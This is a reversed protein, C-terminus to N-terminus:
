GALRDAFGREIERLQSSVSADLEGLSTEFIADGCALSPDPTVELAPARGMAELCARVAAAHAPHVRVRDIERNRLKDLATRVIGQMADSDVALERHLVRKAIAMALHVLDTEAQRRIRDRVSALDAVTRALRELVPRIEASAQERGRKMGEQIGADKAQQARVQAARELEAIKRELAASPQPDPAGPATEAVAGSALRWAIPKVQADTGPLVKCLM